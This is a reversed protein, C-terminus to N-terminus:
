ISDIDLRKLYPEITREGSNYNDTIIGCDILINRGEPTQILACDGQGVDIFTLRLKRDFDHNYIWTGTLIFTVLVSRYFIQEKRKISFILLLIVFYSVTNFLDFKYFDIYAFKLSAAWKIFLIQASLIINNTEAIASSLFESFIGALIQFFGIALAINAFPVVILNALLSVISIKGFYMAVVPLTGIQAALTTLFLIATFYIIKRGGENWGSIKQVFLSEFKTFFFVMTIVATFSLVFGPDFLQKADFLLIFMAAAGTINYFSRKREMQIAILVFSGMITARVISAPSGTFICYFILVIITILTRPVPKFRFLSLILTIAIIIYAVNLGSVAILHMVGTKIFADRVEDSIDSREGSVLGKLYAGEDGGTNKEINSMAFLKSPFLIKQYFYGLNDKSMVVTNEYGFVIFTKHINHLELYRKYDFEGPNRSSFADSLKGLLAVRDGVEFSPLTLEDGGWQNKRITVMVDGTVEFSNQQTHIYQSGLVFRIKISDYYPIEKIVGVLENNKKKQTNPFHKISNEPIFYFDINSKFIGTFFILLFTLSLIIYENGIRNYFVIFMTILIFLSAVLLTFDFLINSGRLIGAILIISFKFAPINKLIDM